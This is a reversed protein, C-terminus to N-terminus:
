RRYEVFRYRVGQHEHTESVPGRVFDDPFGPLFTDCEFTALVETLYLTRCAPHALAEAYVSAGGTAFVRHVDDRAALQALADEFSSAVLVGEPLDLADPSRTLVVNLRGPLPRFREPISAWTRRGMLVANVRGPEGEPVATTVRKFHKLDGPLRWPLDGDVGIGRGEDCAVVIGLDIAADASM